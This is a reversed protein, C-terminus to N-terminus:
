TLLLAAEQDLEWRLVGDDPPAILQSPYNEPQYPGELVAKLAEAKDAGEIMFIVHRAASIAPATLTIRWADLKEVYNAVVWRSNAQLAATHPFLSATHGDPGMGQLLLDIHPWEDGEFEARLLSEYDQAADEPSIEGVMRHVQQTPVPVHKLLLDQAVGFNSEPDLPPVCREDGWFVHVLKWDIQSRFPEQALMTFLARPTSGGSLGITFRGRTKIAAESQAAIYGAVAQTLTVASPHISIESM